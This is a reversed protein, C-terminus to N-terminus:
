CREAGDRRLVHLRELWQFGSMGLFMSSSFVIAPLAGSTIAVIGPGPCYGGLGWGIGFITSDILLRPTVDRRTPIHFHKGFIPSRRRIIYRYFVFHVAIAGAIVFTLSPDWHGGIDLFGIVKNANLMGAIGLGIAFLLGSIFSSVAIKM